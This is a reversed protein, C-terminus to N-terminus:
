ALRRYFFRSSCPRNSQQLEMKSRATDYRVPQLANPVFCSVVTFTSLLISIQTLGCVILECVSDLPGYLVATGFSPRSGTDCRRRVKVTHRVAIGYRLWVTGYSPSSSYRVKGYRVMRRAAAATDCRRRRVKLSLETAEFSAAQSALDEQRRKNMVELETAKEEHFAELVGRCM